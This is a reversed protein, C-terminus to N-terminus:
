KSPNSTNSHPSPYTKIRYVIFIDELFSPSYLVESLSSLTRTELHSAETCGSRANFLGEMRSEWPCHYAIFHWIFLEGTLM